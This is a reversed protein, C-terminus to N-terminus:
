PKWSCRIRALKGSESPKATGSGILEALRPGMAGAALVLDVGGLGIAARPMADFKASEPSQALTLGGATRLARIGRAGDSGTGSLVVGVGREGWHDAISELLLDICPSPGFRPLPLASGSSTAM